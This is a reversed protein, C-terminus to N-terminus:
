RFKSRIKIATEIKDKKKESNSKPIISKKQKSDLIDEPLDDFFDDYVKIDEEDSDSIKIDKISGFIKRSEM